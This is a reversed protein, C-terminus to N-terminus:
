RGPPHRPQCRPRWFGVASLHVGGASVGRPCTSGRLEWNTRVAVSWLNPSPQCARDVHGFRLPTGNVRFSRSRWTSGAVARHQAGFARGICISAVWSSRNVSSCARCRPGCCPGHAAVEVRLPQAPGSPARTKRCYTVPVRRGQDRAVMMAMLVLTSCWRVAVLGARQQVLRSCETVPRSIWLGSPGRLLAGALRRGSSRPAARQDVALQPHSGHARPLPRPSIEAFSSPSLRSLARCSGCSSCVM